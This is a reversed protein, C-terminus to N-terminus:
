KLQITKHFIYSAIQFNSVNPLIDNEIVETWLETEPEEVVKIQRKIWAHQLSDTATMRVSGISSFRIPFGM